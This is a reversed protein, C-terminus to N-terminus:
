RFNEILMLDNSVTQREVLITKGDPAVALRNYFPWADRITAGLM